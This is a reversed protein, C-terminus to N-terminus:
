PALRKAARIVDAALKPAHETCMGDAILLELLVVYFEEAAADSFAGHKQRLEDIADSARAVFDSRSPGCKPCSM